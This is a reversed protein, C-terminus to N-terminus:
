LPGGIDDHFRTRERAIGHLAARPTKAWARPSSGNGHGPRTSLCSNLVGPVTGGAWWRANAEPADSDWSLSERFGGTYGREAARRFPMILAGVFTMLVLRPWRWGPASELPRVHAWLQVRYQDDPAAAVLATFGLIAPRFVGVGRGEAVSLVSPLRWSGTVAVAALLVVVLSPLGITFADPVERYAAVLGAALGVAGACALFAGFLWGVVRGAARVKSAGPFRSDEATTLRDLFEAWYRWPGAETVPGDLAAGVEPQRATLDEVASRTALLDQPKKTIAFRSAAALLQGILDQSTRYAVYAYGFMRAAADPLRLALLEAEDFAM